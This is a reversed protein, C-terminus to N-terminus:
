FINKITEAVMSRISKYFAFFAFISGLIIDYYQFDKSLIEKIVYLGGLSLSHQIYLLLKTLPKQVSLKFLALPFSIITFPIILISAIISLSVSMGPLWASIAILTNIGSSFGISTTDEAIIEGSLQDINGISFLLSELSIDSLFISVASLFKM